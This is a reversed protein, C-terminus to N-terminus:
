LSDGAVPVLALDRAPRNLLDQILARSEADGPAIAQVRRALRLAAKLSGERNLRRMIYRNAELDRPDVGFAPFSAEEMATDPVADLYLKAIIDLAIDHPIDPIGEAARAAEERRGSALLV